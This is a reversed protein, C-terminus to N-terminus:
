TCTGGDDNIDVVPEFSLNRLRERDESKIAHYKRNIEPIKKLIKEASDKTFIFEHIDNM